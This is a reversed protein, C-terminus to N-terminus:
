LSELIAEAWETFQKQEASGLIADRHVWTYSPLPMSKDAVEDLAAELLQRARRPSYGGFESFNLEDKGERVHSDLWWAVPQLNAYWPYRTTNSHCDYCARQLIAKVEPSTPHLATIDRPQPGTAVNPTPRIFQIGVVGIILGIVVIRLAKKM